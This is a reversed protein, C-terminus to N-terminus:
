LSGDLETKEKNIFIPNYYYEDSDKCSALVDKTV